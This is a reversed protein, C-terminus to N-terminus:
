SFESAHNDKVAEQLVRDGTQEEERRSKILEDVLSVGKPVYQKVAKQALAVAQQVPILPLVPM